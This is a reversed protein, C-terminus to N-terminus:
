PTPRLKLVQPMLLPPLHRHPRHLRRYRECCKRPHLVRAVVTCTRKLGAKEQVVSEDVPPPPQRRRVCKDKAASKEKEEHEEENESDEECPKTQEDDDLEVVEEEKKKEEEEKEEEEEEQKKKQKRRKQAQQRTPGPARHSLSATGRPSHHPRPHVTSVPKENYKASLKATTWEKLGVLSNEDARGSCHVHQLTKIVLDGTTNM